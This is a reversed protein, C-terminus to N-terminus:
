PLESFGGVGDSVGLDLQAPQVPLGISERRPLRFAQGPQHASELFAFGFREVPDGRINGFSEHLCGESKAAPQPSKLDLYSRSLLRLRRGEALHGTPQDLLV